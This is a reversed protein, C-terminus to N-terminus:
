DGVSKHSMQIQPIRDAMRSKIPKVESPEKLPENGLEIIKIYSYKDPEPCAQCDFRPITHCLRELNYKCVTVM